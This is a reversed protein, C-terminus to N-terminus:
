KYIEKRNGIDIVIILLVTDLINYIVSYDGIRIRWSQQRNTEQLQPARTKPSPDFKQVLPQHM